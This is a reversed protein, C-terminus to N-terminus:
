LKINPTAERTFAWQRSLPARRSEDRNKSKEAGCFVKEYSMHDGLLSKM